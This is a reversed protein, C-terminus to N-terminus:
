RRWFAPTLLVLFTFIELRGFIMAAVLILKTVDPVGAYSAAVSGLGAGGNNLSCAVAGFASIFDLGTAMVLGMLLGFLLIYLTLFGWVADVVRYHVPKKGLRIAFVGNPHLLRSVERMSHKFAVLARLPKIGSTTSGACGGIICASVVLVPLTGPWTTFDTSTFGTTTILSVSQFLSYRFSDAGSYVGQWSLVVTVIAVLLLILFCFFRLEPDRWYAQFRGRRLAVFHLSFNVAGLFMFVVAIYEILPNQFYGMSAAHTSAGATAITSFAHCVADFWSMGALYYALVCCLTLGLYILWLAKATETIRPTLKDKTVGPTEAKYLQMGGIGLMPMVAVALVVIGMGGLWCLQHRYYNLTAPMTDLDPIVSSGTGTLGSFSEFLADVARLEHHPALLFPLAGILGFVVWFLFVVLFGDRPMLEDRQRRNPLWAVLGMLAILVFGASFAPTTGDRYYLSLLFPPILTLSYLLMLVGLIRLIQRYSM